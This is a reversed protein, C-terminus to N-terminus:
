PNTEFIAWLGKFERQWEVLIPYYTSM